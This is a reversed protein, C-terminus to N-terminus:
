KAYCNAPEVAHEIRYSGHYCKAKCYPCDHPFKSLDKGPGRARIWFTYVSDVHTNYTSFCGGIPNWTECVALNGDVGKVVRPYAYTNYRGKLDQIDYGTLDEYYSAVIMDGVKLEAAPVFLEGPTIITSSVKRPDVTDDLTDVMTVTVNVHQALNM